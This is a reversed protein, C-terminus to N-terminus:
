NRNRQPYLAILLFSVAHCRRPRLHRDLTHPFVFRQGALKGIRRGRRQEAPYCRLDGSGVGVGVVRRKRLADGADPGCRSGGGASGIVRGGGDKGAGFGRQLASRIANERGRNRRIANERGSCWGGIWSGQQIHM